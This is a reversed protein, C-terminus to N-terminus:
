HLRPVTSRIVKNMAYMSVFTVFVCVAIGVLIWGNGIMLHLLLVYVGHVLRSAIRAISLMAKGVPSLLIGVVFITMLASAFLAATRLHSVQETERIAEIQHVISQELWEPATLQFFSTQLNWSTEKLDSVIQSCADCHALHQQVSRYDVDSLEGDIYASLLPIINDCNM